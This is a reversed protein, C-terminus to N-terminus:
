GNQNFPMENYYDYPAHNGVVYWIGTQSYHRDMIEEYSLNDFEPHGCALTPDHNIVMPTLCLCRRNAVADVERITGRIFSGIIPKDIEM